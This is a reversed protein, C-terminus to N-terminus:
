YGRTGSRASAIRQWSSTRSIERRWNAYRNGSAWILCSFSKPKTLDSMAIRFQARGSACAGFLAPTFSREPCAIAKMSAISTRPAHLSRRIPQCTGAILRKAAEDLRLIRCAQDTFSRLMCRAATGSKEVSLSVYCSWGM